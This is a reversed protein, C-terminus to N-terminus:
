IIRRGGLDVSDEEDAADSTYLLCVNNDRNRRRRNLVKGNGQIGANRLHLEGAPAVPHIGQLAGDIELAPKLSRDRGGAAAEENQRIGQRGRLACKISHAGNPWSVVVAELGSRRGDVEEQTNSTPHQSDRICM